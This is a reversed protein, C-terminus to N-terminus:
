WDPVQVGNAGLTYFLEGGHHLDHEILHWIIWQRTCVYGRVTTYTQDMTSTTWRDLVAAILDWSARLGNAIEAGTYLPDGDEDWALFPASSPIAEGAVTTLWYLRAGVIHAALLWVPRQSPSNLHLLQEDTLNGVAEILYNNYADWGEYYPTLPRNGDTM